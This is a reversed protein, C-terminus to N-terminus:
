ESSKHKYMSKFTSKVPPMMLTFFFMEWKHEPRLRELYFFFNSFMSSTKSWMVPSRQCNQKFEREYQIEFIPDGYFIYCFYDEKECKLHLTMEDDLYYAWHSKYNVGTGGESSFIWIFWEKSLPYVHHNKLSICVM